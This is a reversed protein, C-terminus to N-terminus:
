FVIKLYIPSVIKEDQLLDWLLTNGPQCVDSINFNGPIGDRIINTKMETIGAVGSGGPMMSKSVIGTAGALLRGAQKGGIFNSNTDAAVIGTVDRISSGSSISRARRPLSFPMCHAQAALQVMEDECPSDEDDFDAMNKESKNSMPSSYSGADIDGPGPGSSAGSVMGGSGSAVGGGGGSLLDIIQSDSITGIFPGGEGGRGSSGASNLHGMTTESCDSDNILVSDSPSEIDSISEVIEQISKKTVFRGSKKRKRIKKRMAVVEIRGDAEDEDDTSTAEDVDGDNNRLTVMIRDMIPISNEKEGGLVGDDMKEVGGGGSGTPQSPQGSGQQVCCDKHRAQKCPTPAGSDSLGDVDGPSKRHDDSSEEEHHEEESQSGDGDISVSNESSSAAGSIDHSINSSSLLEGSSGGSVAHRSCDRSWILKTLASAIYISQETHEKPDLRCLLMYLHLAPRPALNKVLSPLIDYVPKSCHKLQAAQWVLSIHEETIQNEVALFNLLIQSQKIVEVHLNPGFLHTIIQNDSLWDALKQGVIEVEAVTESTCIDNFINIHANIQAMGALRMTLTSSTFYKFALALGETDFTVQADLPDKVAAWMFDAVSRTAPSRLEQDSLKCMYQLVKIRIPVFLQIICRYNLWIKLNSIVSTIAHATSVPLTQQEFCITMAAFGGSNCFLSVNRFLFAPVETDHFDCFLNFSQVEQASIEDWRSQVGHKYALYLPFNLLFAKSLLILLKELDQVCWKENAPLIKEDVTKATDPKELGVEHDDVGGDGSSPPPPTKPNQIGDIQTVSKPISLSAEEEASVIPSPPTKEDTSSSVEDVIKGIVKRISEVDVPQTPAVIQQENTLITKINKLQCVTLCIISQIILNFREFNKIDRYCCM